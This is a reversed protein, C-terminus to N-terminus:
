PEEYGLPRVTLEYQKPDKSFFLGGRKKSHAPLFEIVTESREIVDAGKRLEGEVIVGEATLGGENTVTLRVLYGNRIQMISEVSIKVDPAPHNESIATYLLFGLVGAIIVFGIGGIIWELTPIAQAEQAAASKASGAAATEDDNPRQSQKKSRAAM